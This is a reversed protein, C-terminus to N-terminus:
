FISKAAGQVKGGMAAVGSGYESAYRSEWGAHVPSKKRM